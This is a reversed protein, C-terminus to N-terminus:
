GHRATRVMAANYARRAANNAERITEGSAKAKSYAVRANARAAARDGHRDLKEYYRRDNDSIRGGKRQKVARVYEPRCGVHQAVEVPRFGAALLKRIRDAKTM